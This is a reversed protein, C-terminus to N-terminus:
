RPMAPVLDRAALSARLPLLATYTAVVLIRGGQPTAAVARELADIPDPTTGLFGPPDTGPAVAATTAYRIRLVLDAARRGAVLYRRGAVLAAPSVDWYWSVDRGDAFADNVAFLVTDIRSRDSIRTFEDLSAPNKLLGLVVERGDLDAREYRGFPVTARALSRVAEHMPVGLVVAATVAAAANYANGLGPLAIDITVPPDAAWGLRLTQGDLGRDELVEFALAPQPRHLGCRGCRYGGNHGADSWGAARAAGCSPCSGHEAPLADRRGAPARALGFGTADAGVPRLLAALRPDDVNYVVPEAAGPRALSPTWRRIVWDTEGFRDLQDRYLNTLVVLSGPTARRLGPVAAEDVEFVGAAGPERLRGDLTAGTVLATVVGQRLNAGSPNAIVPRGSGALIAALLRSTTTKGNTGSVLAVSRLRRGLRSEVGPAIRRAVLGPLSTASRGTRRTVAATTRAALIALGDVVSSVPSPLRHVTLGTTLGDGEVPPLAAGSWGELPPM